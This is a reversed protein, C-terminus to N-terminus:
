PGAPLPTGKVGAATTEVPPLGELVSFDFRSFEILRRQPLDVVAIGPINQGYGAVGPNWSHVIYKLFLRSGEM